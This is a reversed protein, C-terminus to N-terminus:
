LALHLPLQVLGAVEATPVAIKAEYVKARSRAASEQLRAKWVAIQNAHLYFRQALEALTKNAKVAALAVKAKFAATGVASGCCLCQPFTLDTEILDVADARSTM